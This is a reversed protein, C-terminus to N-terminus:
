HPVDLLPDVIRVLPLEEPKRGTLRAAEELVAAAVPGHAVVTRGWPVVFQGSYRQQVDPDHLAWRIEDSIQLQAPSLKRL